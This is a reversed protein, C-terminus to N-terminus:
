GVGGVGLGWYGACVLWVCAWCVGVVGVGRWVAWVEAVRYHEALQRAYDAAGYNTAAALGKLRVLAADYARAALREEDWLGLYIHRSGPIGQKRTTQTM